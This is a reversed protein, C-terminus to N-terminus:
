ICDDETEDNSYKGEAQAIAAKLENIADAYSYPIEPPWNLANGLGIMERYAQKCVELLDLSQVADGKDRIYLSSGIM